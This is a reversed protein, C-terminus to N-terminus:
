GTGQNWLCCPARYRDRICMKKSIKELDEKSLSVDDLVIKGNKLRPSITKRIAEPQEMIEKFMFHEYGGKEASSVDWDVHFPTKSVVEKEM